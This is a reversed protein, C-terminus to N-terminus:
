WSKGWVIFEPLAIQTGGKLYMRAILENQYQYYFVEFATKGDPGEGYNKDTAFIFNKRITLIVLHNFGANGNLNFIVPEWIPVPVIEISDIASVSIGNAIQSVMTETETGITQLYKKYGYLVSTDCYIVKMANPVNRFIISQNAVLALLLEYAAQWNAEQYYDIAAPTVTQAAPITGLTTYHSLWKVIGDYKTISYSFGTDPRSSDGFWCNTGMDIRVSQLFFPIIKSAFTDYDKSRFDRLAGTYFEQRCNKTASYVEATEIERLGTTGIQKYIIECSKDRRQMINYLPTIDIIPRKYPVNDMIMFDNTMADYAGEGAPLLYNVSPHTIANFLALPEIMWTENM